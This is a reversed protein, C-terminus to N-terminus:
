IYFDQFTELCLCALRGSDACAGCDIYINQRCQYIEPRGIFFPTPTHGMIVFVSEDDTYQFEPESRYMVLEEPTYDELKKDPDFNGLGAHVLVFIRGNVDIYQYYPFTELYDLIERREEPLLAQFEKATTMGGDEVWLNFDELDESSLYNKCNEETVEVCFKELLYLAICDHNGMIPHINQHQMMHQLIAIPHKGRDCVDGLIYLEDQESFHILDLMKLYKEYEGHIDSIAYHM